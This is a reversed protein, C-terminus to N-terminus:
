ITLLLLKVMNSVVYDHDKKYLAHAQMSKKFISRIDNIKKTEEFSLRKEENGGFLYQVRMNFARALKEQGLATEKVVHNDEYAIYDYQENQTEEKERDFIRVKMRRVVSDVAKYLNGTDEGPGSITLPTCAEDILLNDIEEIISYYLSRRVCQSLDTVMNDRLYDFVFENSDGYTIDAKYAEQRSIPRFHRLNTNFEYNPDYILAPARESSTNMPYISAVTLGLAHYIPGMSYSDFRAQYENFIALHCGLGMLSNLYLPCTPVLNNHEGKKIEAIKGQHLVIGSILQEDSHRQHITRKAAERVAAFTDPLLEDLVNKEVNLLEEQRKKLEGELNRYERSLEEQIVANAADAECKGKEALKECAKNVEDKPHSIAQAIRLKFESTKARLESESLKEFDAELANIKEIPQLDFLKRFM